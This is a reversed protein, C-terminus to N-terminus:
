TFSWENYNIAIMTNNSHIPMIKKDTFAYEKAQMCGNTRRKRPISVGNAMPSSISKSMSPNPFSCVVIQVLLRTRHKCTLRHESVMADREIM